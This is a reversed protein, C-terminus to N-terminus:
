AAADLYDINNLTYLYAFAWDYVTNRAVAQRNNSMRAIREKQPMTYVRHITEAVRQLDEPRPSPRIPIAAKDGQILENAAGTFESLILVGNDPGCVSYEKAVLNMGDKLPGTYAANAMRYYPIVEDQPLERTISTIPRWGTKENAHRKNIAAELTALRTKLTRYSQVGERSPARVQVMRINGPLDDYNALALDLAMLGEPFGKTYDNRGVDLFVHEDGFQERIKATLERVKDTNARELFAEVDISIPFANAVVRREIENGNKDRDKYTIKPGLQTDEITADPMMAKVNDIFNDLYEQNHFGVLDYKMLGKLIAENEPLQSFVGRPPFPIHHFYGLKRDNVGMNRLKDATLMLHYDQVWVTDGRKSNWLIRDAFKQNASNYSEWYENEGHPGLNFNCLEPMGHMLPWLVDNSYGEYYNKVEWENLDVPVMRFPLGKAAREFAEELGGAEAAAGPWGIWLGNESVAPRLGTVLGGAMAPLIDKIGGNEDLVVKAPARNAVVTLQDGVSTLKQKVDQIRVVNDAGLRETIDIIPARTVDSRDIKNFRQGEQDVPSVRDLPFPTIPADVAPAEGSVSSLQPKDIPPQSRSGRAEAMNRM